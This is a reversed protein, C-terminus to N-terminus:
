TFIYDREIYEKLLECIRTRFRYQLTQTTTGWSTRLGFWFGWHIYWRRILIATLSIINLIIAVFLYAVSANVHINHEGIRVLWRCWANSVWAKVLILFLLYILLLLLQNFDSNGLLWWIIIWLGSLFKFKILFHIFSDNSMACNWLM